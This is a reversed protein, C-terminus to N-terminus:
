KGAYASNTMERGSDRYLPNDTTKQNKADRARKVLEYTGFSSAGLVILAGIIAAIIIGAIAAGTLAAVLKSSTWSSLCNTMANPDTLNTANPGMVNVCGGCVDVTAGLSFKKYCHKIESCASIYCSQDAASLDITCDVPPFSCNGTVGNCIDQTCWLGDYCAFTHVCGTTTNCSDITCVNSDDCSATAHVCGTSADCSDITCANADDCSIQTHECSDTANNCTDIICASHSSCDRPTYTCVPSGSAASCVADYCPQHRCYPTQMCLNSASDCYGVICKNTVSCDRDTYKCKGTTTDCAVNQCVSPACNVPNHYCVDAVCTDIICKNGSNCSTATLNQYNCQSHIGDPQPGCTGIECTIHHATDNCNIPYTKCTDACFPIPTHSCTGGNCADVTCQDGDDCTNVIHICGTKSNCSDFTCPNGDNCNIATHPCTGSVCTQTTCANGDTCNIPISYCGTVANCYDNTCSNGDDCSKVTTYCGTVHSCQPIHCADSTCVVANSYCGSGTNCGYSMCADGLNCNASTDVHVCGTSPNCSDATCANGDDCNVTSQICAKSTPNCAVNICKGLNNPCQPCICQQDCSCYGQCGSCSQIPLQQCTEMVLQNIVNHLSAFNAVTLFTTVGPVSSAVQQLLTPNISPGVGITIILAHYTNKLTNSETLWSYTDVNNDGDTILIVMRSPNLSGRGGVPSNYIVEAEHLGCGICTSGGGCAVSVSTLFNPLSATLSSVLQYSDSFFAAGVTCQLPGVTYSSAISKVFKIEDSWEPTCNTHGNITTCTSGGCISGSKDVVFVIDMIRGCSPAPCAWGSSDFAGTPITTQFNIFTYTTGDSKIAQCFAAPYTGAAWVSVIGAPDGSRSYQLCSGIPTGGSVLTDTGLLFFRPVPNTYTATNCDTCKKYMLTKGFDYIESIGIPPGWTYRIKHNSGTSNYFYSTTGNYLGVVNPINSMVINASFSVDAAAVVVLLALILLKM